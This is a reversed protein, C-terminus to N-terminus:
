KKGRTPMGSGGTKDAGKRPGKNLKGMQGKDPKSRPGLNSSTKGKATVGSVSYTRDGAM